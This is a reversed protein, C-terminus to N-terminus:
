ELASIDNFSKSNNGSCNYEDKPGDELSNYEDLKYDVKYCNPQWTEQSGIENVRRCCRKYVKPLARLFFCPVYRLFITLFTIQLLCAMAMLSMLAETVAFTAGPFNSQTLTLPVHCNSQYFIPLLRLIIRLSAM